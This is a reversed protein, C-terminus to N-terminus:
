LDFRGSAKWRQLQAPSYGEWVSLHDIAMWVPQDDEPDVGFDAVRYSKLPALLEAYKLAEAETGFRVIDRRTNSYSM